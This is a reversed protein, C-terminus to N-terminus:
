EWLGESSYTAIVHRVMAASAARRLSRPSALYGPLKRGLLLLRPLEIGSEVIMARPPAVSRGGGPSTNGARTPPRYPLSARGDFDDTTM